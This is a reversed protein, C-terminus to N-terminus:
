NEKLIKQIQKKLLPLNTKVIDYLLDICFYQHILKDRTGVIKNWEVEEYSDRLDKSLNKAAEGIIEIARIIAYQTKKDKVLQKKDKIFLEAIDINQM